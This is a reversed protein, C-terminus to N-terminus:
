AFERGSLLAPQRRSRFATPLGGYMGANHNGLRSVRYTLMNKLRTERVKSKERVCLAPVHDSHGM